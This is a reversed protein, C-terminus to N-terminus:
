AVARFVPTGTGLDREEVWLASHYLLHLLAQGIRKSIAVPSREAISWGGYGGAMFALRM